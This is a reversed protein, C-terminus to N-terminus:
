EQCNWSHCLLLSFFCMFKCIEEKGQRWKQIIHDTKKDRKLWPDYLQYNIISNFRKSVISLWTKDIKDLKKVLM